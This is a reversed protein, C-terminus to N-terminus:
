KDHSGGAVFDLTGDVRTVIGSIIKDRLKFDHPDLGIACMADIAIMRAVSECRDADSMWVGVDSRVATFQHTVNEPM